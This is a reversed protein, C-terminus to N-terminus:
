GLPSKMWRFAILEFRRGFRQNVPSMVEDAALNVDENAAQNVWDASRKVVAECYATALIQGSRDRSEGYALIKFTDSRVTMRSGVATLVDGQKVHGPVHTMQSGQDAEPFSVRSTSSGISRSGTELAENLSRDLAAQLAGKRAFESGDELRRNVFDARSFFPGRAKVENVMEMAFDEIEADTADRYGKWQTEAQPSTLDNASIGSGKPLLLNVIPTNAQEWQTGQSSGASGDGEVPVVLRRTSSLFAQWARPDTSNVNFAGEVRLLSGVRLYSESDINGGPFLADVDEEANTGVYRYSENPLLTPENDLGVFNTFLEVATGSRAGTHHPADRESLSSVFYDDWLADNVLWSHDVAVARNLQGETQDADIFPVAFSNGIAHNVSPQLIRDHFEASGSVWTQEVGNAHAHQFAALTVPPERPISHTVIYSQGNFARYSGGFFGKGENFDFGLDDLGGSLPQMRTEFPLGSLTDDDTSQFDYGRGAPSLRSMYRTQGLGETEAGALLSFIAIPEPNEFIEAGLFQKERVEEFYNSPFDNVDLEDSSEGLSSLRDIFLGGSWRRDSANDGIYNGFQVIGWQNAGRQPSSSMGVRVPDTADVEVQTDFLFGGEGNWGLRGSFTKVADTPTSSIQGRSYILVEGPRMTLPDGDSQGIEISIHNSEATSRRRVLDIFHVTEGNVDFEYPLGWCRVSLYGPAQMVLNVDHPNWLTIIPEMVIHVNRKTRDEPSARTMVSIYWSARIQFPRVYSAFREDAAGNKSSEGVLVPVESNLQGGDPHRYSGADYTLRSPLDHFDKLEQFTIGNRRNSGVYLAENHDSRSDDDLRLSLDKRFGGKRVDTLLGDAWVSFSPHEDSRQQGTSLNVTQDTILSENGPSDKLIEALESIVSVDAPSSQAHLLYPDLEESPFEYDTAIKAKTNEDVVAFAYGGGDISVKPASWLTQSEGEMLPVTDSAEQTFNLRETDERSGSVLWSRFEPDEGTERDSDWVGVWKEIGPAVGDEMLDAPANIRQDPGLQEQLRAIALNLALRANARAEIEAQSADSSRIATASLSLIGVSILSLLILLTVTTILAFGQQCQSNPKQIKMVRHVELQSEKQIGLM